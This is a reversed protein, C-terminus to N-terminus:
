PCPKIVSIPQESHKKKGARKGRTIFATKIVNQDPLFNAKPSNIESLDGFLFLTQNTERNTTMMTTPAHLCHTTSLRNKTKIILFPPNLFLTLQFLIVLGTHLIM